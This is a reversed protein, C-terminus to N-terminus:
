SAKAKAAKALLRQKTKEVNVVFRVHSGKCIKDLPDSAEIEFAVKRGDVETVTATITVDMDLLTPAMHTLSVTFGVSDEGEPTRDFILDRCTHEIDRVLSPTAYVRADEGMFDITRDRDVTITRTLTAGVELKDSM